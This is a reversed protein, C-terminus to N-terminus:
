LGLANIAQVHEWPFEGTHDYHAAKPAIRDRALAQVQDLVMTEHEPLAVAADLREFVTMLARARRRRRHLAHRGVALPDAGRLAHRGPARGRGLDRRPRAARAEEAM